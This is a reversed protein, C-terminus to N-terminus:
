HHPSSRIYPTDLGEAWQYRAKRRQRRGPEGLAAQRSVFFATATFPNSM